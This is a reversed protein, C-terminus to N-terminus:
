LNPVCQVCMQSSKIILFSSFICQIKFLQRELLSIPLRYAPLTVVSVLSVHTCSVYLSNRCRFKGGLTCCVDQINCLAAVLSPHSRHSTAVVM